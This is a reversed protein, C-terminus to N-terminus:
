SVIEKIKRKIRTTLSYDGYKKAIGVFGKKEYLKWFNKREVSIPSPKDLNGQKKSIKSLETEKLILEGTNELLWKGKSSHVLVASIGEESFFDPEEDKCGWYDAITIDSPKEIGAFRCEHCHPRLCNNSFFLVLFVRSKLTDVEKKGNKYTITCGFNKSGYGWPKRKTRFEFKEFDKGLWNIYDSFLKPSPTGHCILDVTFLKDINTNTTILYSIVGEIHCSTGFYLVYKGLELDTKVERLTNALNTQVYKSGFFANCEELTTAKKTIVNFQQDYVVGYVTGGLEIIKKCLAHSVGGSTSKKLVTSDNNKAAYCLIENKKNKMM